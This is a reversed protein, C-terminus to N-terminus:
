SWNAREVCVGLFGRVCWRKFCYLLIKKSYCDTFTMRDYEHLDLGQKGGRDEKNERTRKTRSM